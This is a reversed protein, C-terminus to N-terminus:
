DQIEAENWWIVAAVGGECGSLMDQAEALLYKNTVKKGDLDLYEGEVLQVGYVDSIKVPVGSPSYVIMNEVDERSIMEWNRLIGPGNLVKSLDEDSHEINSNASGILALGGVAAVAAALMISRLVTSKKMPKDEKIRSLVSARIKNVRKESLQEFELEFEDFFKNM